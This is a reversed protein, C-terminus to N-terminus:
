LDQSILEYEENKDATVKHFLYLSLPLVVLAPIVVWYHLSDDSVMVRKLFGNNAFTVLLIALSNNITHSLMSNFVSGSRLTLYALLMGLLFVPIFRFPDLHFAAFLFASILINSMFGFKEFFRPMLGRFLLEECVGPALAVVALSGWLSLDMDFLQSLNELYQEPFPFIHNILQALITVIVSASIAIFPVLAIEKLRPMKLRLVKDKDQKLLAVFVLVPLAILIIQTKVLGSVMDQMQWRSGLYYLALLALSFYIIGNYPTFINKRDKKISKIGGSDDESRFLVSESNFLKISAWIAIADLVLTSGITILLHSIQYDNVMVAKFILSINVVPILALMGNLEIAPLFSIMAMIMSVMMIPQEYSRAEKMNRSFTSISLLLAAFFTALPLMTALLLLIAKFPIGVGAMDMGTQGLMFKVSISMSFLNVILNLMSLSIITLYKGIVIERRDIGAVLLTELTKREKEGAVLDAAVISAGTLLMIIMIYPLFMGLIMGMKKQSDATDISHVEIINMIKPNIGRASIHEEAIEKQVERLKWSVKDLVMQGQENAADYKVSVHYLRLGDADLSDRITVVGQIDKNEYLYDVVDNAPHFDFNEIEQLSAVIRASVPNLVSDAIAVSAGREELVGTQRSMVANFGIILLPYLILPLLFTTFITRKDRLVELWEKRFVIFVKKSSM